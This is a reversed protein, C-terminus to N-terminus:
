EVDDQDEQDKVAKLQSIAASVKVKAERMAASSVGLTLAKMLTSLQYLLEDDVFSLSDNRQEDILTSIRHFPNDHTQQQQLQTQTPPEAIPQTAEQQTIPPATNILSSIRQYPNGLTPQQLQTHTPPEATSQTAEQQRTLQQTIPPATNILSSIRQYPNGLTPQQLQTHTPPEAIPQIAEQQTIPPNTVYNYLNRLLEDHTGSLPRINAYIFNNTGKSLQIRGQFNGNNYAGAQAAVRDCFSNLTNYRVGNYMIYGYFLSARYAVGNHTLTIDAPPQNPPPNM